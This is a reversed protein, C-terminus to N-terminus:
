RRHLLRGQLQQYEKQFDACMQRLKINQRELGRGREVDVEQSLSFCATLRITENNM